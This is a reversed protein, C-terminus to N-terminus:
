YSALVKVWANNYVEMYDELDKFMEIKPLTKEDPYAENSNKIYDPLMERVGKLPSTFGEMWEANAASIKPDTFYNIFIEANKKNQAKKPIALSDVQRNGGEKPIVYKLNPNEKSMLLADGSYMVTMAADGQIIVDRAEDTLYAYVLPKQKILEETAQNIEKMDTTNISYGLKQLAVSMSLRPLDYMIIKGKYKPDWLDAWSDIPKDVMDKNYVIGFSSTFYPVTYKGEPDFPLNKYQDMIYKANPVNSFDIPALMDYKLLKEVMYDMPVVVDYNNASQTLKVFMEEDSQFTQYIVEIGTDKEFQKILDMDMYEGANFVVVQERNKGTCSTLFLLLFIMYIKKMM